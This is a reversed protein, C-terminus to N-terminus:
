GADHDDVEKTLIVTMYLRGRKLVIQIAANATQNIIENVTSLGLGHNQGKTTYGAQMFQNIKPPNTVSVPNAVALEVADPYDLIACYIEPLDGVLPAEIANDLLIGMVRLLQVNNMPIAQVQDPIELRFHWGRNQAALIKQFLLSKLPPDNLRQFGDVELGVLQKTTQWHDDLTKFYAELGAYDEADLYDGLKLMQKQYTHKFDRIARVQDSIRQDYRTQLVSAQYDVMARQRSFFSRLFLFLSIVILAVMLSEIGLAFTLLSHPLNLRHIVATSLETMLGLTGLLTLVTWQEKRSFALQALNGPQIRMGRVGLSILFYAGVQATLRLAVGLTSNAFVAGWIEITGQYFLDNILVVILAIVLTVNVFIVALQRRHRLLYSWAALPPIVLAWPQGILATVLAWGVWQVPLLWTQPRIEGIWLTWFGQMVMALVFNVWFNQDFLHFIM